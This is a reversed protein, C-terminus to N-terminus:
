SNFVVYSILTLRFEFYPRDTLIFNIKGTQKAFFIKM